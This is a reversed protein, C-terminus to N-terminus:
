RVKPFKDHVVVCRDDQHVVRSRLEARMMPELYDYLLTPDFGRRWAFHKKSRARARAARVVGRDHRRTADNVVGRSSRAISPNIGSKPADGAGSGGKCLSNGLSFAQEAGRLKRFEQFISQYCRVLDRVADELSSVCDPSKPRMSPPCALLVFKVSRSGLQGDPPVAIAYATGPTASGFRARAAVSLSTTASYAAHLRVAEPDLRTPKFRWTTSVVLVACPKGSATCAGECTGKHVSLQTDMIATSDIRAQLAELLSSEGSPVVFVISVADDPHLSSLYGRASAIAIEVATAVPIAFEAAAGLVPLALTPEVTSPPESDSIRRRKPSSRHEAEDRGGSSGADYAVSPQGGAAGADRQPASRAAAADAVASGTRQPPPEVLVRLFHKKGVLSIIDGHHLRVAADRGTPIAAPSGVGGERARYLFSENVGLQPLVRGATLPLSFCLRAYGVCARTRVRYVAPWPAESASADDVFAIALQKRSVLVDHSLLVGRGLLAPEAGACVRIKRSVTVETDAKVDYDAARGAGAAGQEGGGLADRASCPALVVAAVPSQSSM